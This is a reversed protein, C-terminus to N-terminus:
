DITNQISIFVTHQVQLYKTLLRHLLLMGRDGAFEAWSWMGDTPKRLIRQIFCLLQLSTLCLLSFHPHGQEKDQKKSNLHFKKTDTNQNWKSGGGDLLPGGYKYTKESCTLNPFQVLACQNRQLCKHFLCSVDFSSPVLAAMNWM